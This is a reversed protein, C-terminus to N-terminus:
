RVEPNGESSGRSVRHPPWSTVTEWPTRTAAVAALEETPHWRVSSRMFTRKGSPRGRAVVEWPTHRNGRRHTRSSPGDLAMGLLELGEADDTGSEIRSLSDLAAQRGVSGSLSATAFAGDALLLLRDRSDHAGEYEAQIAELIREVDARRRLSQLLALIAGRWRPEGAHCSAFEVQDELRGPPSNWVQSTNVFRPM